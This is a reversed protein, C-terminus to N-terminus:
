FKYSLTFSPIIPLITIKNLVYDPTEMYGAKNKVYVFSPNMANYANYVSINFTRECRKKQKNFNVGLCLFHSCPLRYNNRNEVYYVAIGNNDTGTESREWGGWSFILNGSNGKARVITEPKTVVQKVTSLTTAAGSFFTWSCDLEIKKNFRYNFVANFTHRRDYSFPFTRGSNVGSSKSFKRDSKSLTYSLWGDAKKFSFEALLEVGKSFGKGAAVMRDWTGSFGTFSMGDKYELVNNLEKYYGELSFDWHELGTFYVGLSYQDATEPEFDKTIPVWLDTPLAIPASTLLHVCQSMRSYSTKLFWNKVFNYKLSIRPQINGYTMDQVSFLTYSLGVIANLKEFVMWDDEAYVSLEHAYVPSSKSSFVTDINASQSKSSSTEPNFDHYTYNVGFKVTHHSGPLFDFDIIASVDEIESGYCSETYDETQYGLYRYSITEDSGIEMKYRNYIVSTNSFLKSSFVHNWRLSPIFNGWKLRSGYTDVTGSWDDEYRDKYKDHGSYLSLYLRDKDSFKHNIKANLDYFWYNFNMDGFKKMFPKAVLSFYTTRASICLSTKDKIIPGEFNLRSTLIGISFSGHYNQMDGDKTRVDIVSSVRGNYRAPFSSKYFTVRKVAEPTFVSFFGFLHDIKYVPAGDLLVLNEDGGGGRVYVSSAGGVGQQVGPTLQITRMVDTEGLLSPTHRIIDVPIDMSGMGTAQVGADEKKASFWSQCLFFRESLQFLSCEPRVKVSAPMNVPM